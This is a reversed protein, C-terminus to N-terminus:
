CAFKYIPRTTEVEVLRITKEEGIIQRQCISDEQLYCSLELIQEKRSFTYSRISNNPDDSSTADGFIESIAELINFLDPADEFTFAKTTYTLYFKNPNAISIWYSLKLGDLFMCTGQHELSLLTKRAKRYQAIYIETTRLSETAVRTLSERAVQM